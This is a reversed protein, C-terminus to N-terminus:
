GPRGRRGVKITIKEERPFDHAVTPDAEFTMTGEAGEYNIGAKATDDRTRWGVKIPRSTPGLLTVRLVASGKDEPFEYELHKFGITPFPTNDAQYRKKYSFKYSGGWHSHDAAPISPPPWCKSDVGPRAM